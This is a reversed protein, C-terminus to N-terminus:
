SHARIIIKGFPRNEVYHAFAARADGLAFTEAIPVSIGHTAVADVLERTHRLHGLSIPHVATNRLFVASADIPGSGTPSVLSVSGGITTAAVSENVDGYLHVVRDAGRSGTSSMVEPVMTPGTMIVRAAGLATLAGNRSADSTAVWATAGMAAALAIVFCSVGGSTRSLVLDGPATTRGIQLAHWATVGACPLCAAQEVPITAPIRVTAAAELCVFEALMGDLSGGLQDSREPSFPGDAWHPFVAGIVRDGVALGTVGEGLEVIRGVGDAAPVVTDKVPLPYDGALVSLERQNLSVAEVAVLVQGAAPAPRPRTVCRLSDLGGGFECLWTKM